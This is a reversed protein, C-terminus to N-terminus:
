ACGGRLAKARWADVTLIDVGFYDAVDQLVDADDNGSRAGVTMLIDILNNACFRMQDVDRSKKANAVDILMPVFADTVSLVPALRDSVSM